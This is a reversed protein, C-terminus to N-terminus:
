GLVIGFANSVYGARANSANLANQLAQVGQQNTVAALATGAETAQRRAQAATKAKEAATLADAVAEAIEKKMGAGIPKGIEKGIAALDKASAQVNYAMQQVLDAAMSETELLFSPVMQSGLNAAANNAVSQMNVFTEVLGEDIMAQGMAGGLKPGLSALYDALQQGGPGGTRKIENLVNGFWNLEDIGAVAGTIWATMDLEGQKNLAAQFTGKLDFAKLLSNEIKTSYNEIDTQAKELASVSEGLKGQWRTLADNASDYIRQQSKTIKDAADESASGLNNVNDTVKAVSAAAPAAGLDLNALRKYFEDVAGVDLLATLVPGYASAWASAAARARGELQALAKSLNDTDNTMEETAKSGIALGRQYQGVASYAAGYSDVTLQTAKAQRESEKAAEAGRDGLQELQLVFGALPPFALAATLGINRITDGMDSGKSEANNLASTLKALESIMVGTGTIMDAIAVSTDELTSELGGTGGFAASVRDLADLLAYGITESAESAAVSLRNMRGQYTEAATQAQGSFTASLQKTIADMDGSALTAKDIGANLRSLGATNGSYARGLAQVTQDLTKNAGASVDLALSLAQQATTFDGTSRVLLDLAPRLEDDAVGTARSLESIFADAESAQAGFGMNLLTQNLSALSKEDEIAAKVGDVGIKVALAAAAAGAALFAPGLMGSLTGGLGQAKMQAQDMGQNFDKLNAALYVTLTKSM